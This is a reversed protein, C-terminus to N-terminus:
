PRSHPGTGPCARRAASERRRKPRPAARPERRGAARSRAALRRLDDRLQDGPRLRADDRHRASAVEAEHDAARQRRRERGVPQRRGPVLVRAEDGGPRARRHHLLHREGPQALQEAQGVAHGAPNTVPQWIACTVASAAARCWTSSAAPQSRARSPRWPAGRIRTRTPSSRWTVTSRASRKRPIPVACISGSATSSCPRIRASASAPREPSPRRARRDDARLRSVDVGAREVRELLDRVRDLAGAGPQVDVAGEPEPRGSRRAEPMEDGADSRASEQAVSQWM